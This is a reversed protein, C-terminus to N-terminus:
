QVIFRRRFWGLGRRWCSLDLQAYGLPGAMPLDRSSQYRLQNRVGRGISRYRYRNWGLAM